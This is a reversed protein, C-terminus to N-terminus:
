LQFGQKAPVVKHELDYVFDLLRETLNHWDDSELITQIQENTEAVGATLIQSCNGYLTYWADTPKIGMHTIGPVFERVIFDFYEQELNAKINWTLIIKVM